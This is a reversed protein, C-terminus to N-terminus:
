LAPFKGHLLVKMRVFNGKAVIIQANSFIAIHRTFLGVSNRRDFILLCVLWSTSTSAPIGCGIRFHFTGSLSFSTVPSYRAGCNELGDSGMWEM